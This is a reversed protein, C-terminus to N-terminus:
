LNNNVPLSMVPLWHSVPKNGPSVAQYHNIKAPDEKELSTFGWGALSPAAPTKGFLELLEQSPWTTPPPASRPPQPSTNEKRRGLEGGPQSTVRGQKDQGWPRPQLMPWQPWHSLHPLLSGQPPLGSRPPLAPLVLPVQAPKWGSTVSGQSLGELRVALEARRVQHGQASHEAERHGTPEQDM